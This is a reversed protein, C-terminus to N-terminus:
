ELNLNDEKNHINSWIISMGNEQDSYYSNTYLLGSDLLHFRHMFLKYNYKKPIQFLMQPKTNDINIVLM